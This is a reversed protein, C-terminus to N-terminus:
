QLQQHSFLQKFTPGPARSARASWQTSCRPPTSKPLPRKEFICYQEFDYRVFLDDERLSMATRSEMHSRPRGASRMKVRPAWCLFLQKLEEIRPSVWHINLVNYFGLVRPLVLRAPKWLALRAVAYVVVLSPMSITRHHSFTLIDRSRSKPHSSECM